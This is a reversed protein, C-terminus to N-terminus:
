KHDLEITVDLNTDYLVVLLLILSPRLFLFSAVGERVLRSGIHGKKKWLKGIRARGVGKGMEVRRKWKRVGAAVEETIAGGKKVQWCGVHLTGGGEMAGVM